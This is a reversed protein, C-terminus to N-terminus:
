TSSSQIADILRLIIHTRRNQVITNDDQTISVNLGVLTSQILVAGPTTTSPQLTVTPNMCYTTVGSANEPGKKGPHLYYSSSPAAVLAWADYLNAGSANVTVLFPASFAGSSNKQTVLKYLVTSAAPSILKTGPAVGELRLILRFTTQDYSFALCPVPAIAYLTTGTVFTPLISHTSTPGSPRLLESSFNLLQSGITKFIIVKGQFGPTTTLTTEPPTCMKGGCGSKVKQVQSNKTAQARSEGGWRTEMSKKPQDM